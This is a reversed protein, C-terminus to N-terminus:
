SCLCACWFVNLCMKYRYSSIFRGHMFIMHIDVTYLTELVGGNCHSHDTDDLTVCICCCQCQISHTECLASFLTCEMLVIGLAWITTCLSCKSAVVSCM